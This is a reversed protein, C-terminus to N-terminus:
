RISEASGSPEGARLATGEESRGTVTAMAEGATDTGATIIDDVMIDVVRDTDMIIGVVRDTGATITDDVMIDVVRDTDMIIGVVRDTGVTIIGDMMIDVVRDTDTAIIGRTLAIIDTTSEIVATIGKEGTATAM